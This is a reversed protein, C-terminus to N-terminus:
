TDFGNSLATNSISSGFALSSIQHPAFPKLVSDTLSLFKAFFLHQGFNLANVPLKELLLPQRTSFILVAPYM